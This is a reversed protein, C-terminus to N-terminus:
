PRWVAALEAQKMSGLVNRGDRTIKRDGDITGEVESCKWEVTRM